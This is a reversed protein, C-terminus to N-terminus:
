GKIIKRSVSRGNEFYFVGLYCGKELHKLNITQRTNLNSSFISKGLLDYLVMRELNINTNILEINIESDVPNPYVKLNSELTSAEDFSAFVPGLCTDVECSVYRYDRNGARNYHCLVKYGSTHTWRWDNSMFTVLSGIGEVWVIPEDQWPNVPIPHFYFVRPDVIGLTPPMSNYCVPDNIINNTISDLVMQTNLGNFTDGVVLSFDYLLNEVTSDNDIIYIKKALSDERLLLFFNPNYSSEIYKNYVLGNVVTDEAVIESHNILM